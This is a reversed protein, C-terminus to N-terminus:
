DGQHDIVALGLVLRLEGTGTGADVMPADLDLIALGRDLRDLRIAARDDGIAAFTSEFEAGGIAGDGLDHAGAAVPLLRLGVQRADDMDSELDLIELRRRAEVLGDEAEPLEAGAAVMLMHRAM